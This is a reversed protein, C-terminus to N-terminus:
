YKTAYGKATLVAKVRNNMSLILNQYVSEPIEEWEKQLLRFLEAESKPPPKQKRIRRELEDWLHEIPNLDPSQGPWKMLNIESNEFFKMTLKSKHISANDQQFEYDEDLIQLFPLLHSQLVEEIYRKSDIKGELRILPGLSDWTFCGWVMVGGGGHKVTPVVCDIDYREKPLRWVRAKGDNEFLTFRSEDSWIVKKWDDATWERHERCWQVRDKKNKSSILPKRAAVRSNYGSEYLARKVTWESVATGTSQVFNTHIQKITQRRNTRVVIELHRKDRDTLIPPRGTRPAPTVTGTECYREITDHITSKPHATIEEIERESHGFLYGGIILGREFETLEQREAM